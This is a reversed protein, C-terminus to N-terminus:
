SHISLVPHQKLQELFDPDVAGGLAQVKQVDAIARDYKKINYFVHARNNYAKTYDPNIKIAENYDFIAPVYNGLKAYAHGRNNYAEADNPSNAIAMTFDSIAGSLNGEQAYAAGRNDYAKAFEPDIDIAKTYDLIAQDYKGKTYAANGSQVYDVASQAFALSSFLFLGGFIQFAKKLNSRKARLSVPLYGRLSM